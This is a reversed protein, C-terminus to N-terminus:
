KAVKKRYACNLLNGEDVFLQGIEYDKLLEKLTEPVFVRLHGRGVEGHYEWGGKLNGEGNGYPGNPTSLYVWGRSLNALHKVFKEVEPVHELVEFCSVVDVKVKNFIRVDDIFFKAKTANHKIARERAKKIVAKTYDVGYSKIGQKASWITLSGVYCGVDLYSAPDLRKLESMMWGYRDYKSAPNDIVSEPEIFECDECPVDQLLHKLKDEDFVHQIILKSNKREEELGPINKFLELLKWAKYPEDKIILEKRILKIAPILDM